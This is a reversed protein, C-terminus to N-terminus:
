NSAIYMPKKKDIQKLLDWAKVYFKKDKKVGLVQGKSLTFTTEWHTLQCNQSVFPKNHIPLPSAWLLSHQHLKLSRGPLLM